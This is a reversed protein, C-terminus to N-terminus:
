TRSGIHAQDVATGDAHVSGCGHSERITNGPIGRICVDDVAARDLGMPCTPCRANDQISVAAIGGHDVAAGDLDAVGGIKIVRTDTHEIEAGGGDEVAAMDPIVMLVLLGFRNGYLRSGFM